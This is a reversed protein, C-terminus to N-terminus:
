TVPDFKACKKADTYDQRESEKFPFVAIPIVNNVNHRL